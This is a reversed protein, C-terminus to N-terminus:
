VIDMQWYRNRLVACFESKLVIYPEKSYSLPIELVCGCTHATPCRVDTKIFRVHIGMKLLLDSGTCFRLFLSLFDTDLERILKKVNNSFTSEDLSMNEPFTLAKLVMKNNPKLDAYVQHLDEYSPMMDRLIEMWCDAVYLPVQILEKHAMEEVIQQINEVNPNKKGQHNDMVEFLDDKDTSDFNTLADVLVDKEMDPVFKLFSEVLNREICSGFIAQEMFPVALKIPFIHEQRLGM